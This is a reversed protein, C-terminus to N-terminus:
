RTSAATPEARRAIGRGELQRHSVDMMFVLAGILGFYSSGILWRRPPSVEYFRQEEDTKKRFLSIIRPISMALVLWIIINPRTIAFYGMIGLGPIWLWPSLATVIRGGDLTGIPTLNFLNLWYGSWAIAIFLPQNTMEGIGHCVLAGAAGLIPGGIGVWAEIWANKPADKLAIFAGMFPIFVPAGVNLGFKKAAVLHGLEHVFILLVFGLAFQWGWLGAYVGITLIMTGGTKLIVPFFKLLPAILFKLKAGFKLLLLGITGVIAVGKKLSDAASHSEVREPVEPLLPPRQANPDPLPPPENLTCPCESATASDCASRFGGNGEGKEALGFIFPLFIAFAVPRDFPSGDGKKKRRLLREANEWGRANRRPRM